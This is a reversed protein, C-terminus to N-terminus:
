DFSYLCPYSCLDHQSDEHICLHREPVPEEMWVDDDLLATPFCEEADEEEEDEEEISTLHYAMTNKDPSDHEMRPHLTDRNLSSEKDEEFMLHCHVTTLTGPQPSPHARPTALGFSFKM